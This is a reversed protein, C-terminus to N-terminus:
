RWMGRGIYYAMAAAGIGIGILCGGAVLLIKVM